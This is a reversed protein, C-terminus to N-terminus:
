RLRGYRWSTRRLYISRRLWNRELRTQTKHLSIDQLDSYRYDYGRSAEYGRRHALQKGPPRRIYGRGSNIEQRVWGRDARSVKPDDSLERLRKQDGRRGIRKLQAKSLLTRDFDDPEWRVPKRSFQVADDSSRAATRATDVVDDGRRALASAAGIAEDGYKLGFKAVTAGEGVIPVAGVVSLAANGWDGEAAYLGANAVDCASGAVPVLGCADLATHAHDAVFDAADSVADAIDDFGFHGDIEVFSVPNGGTLTYRNMTLPDFTLALDDLAGMYQDQQIFRNVSPSFQRTGLQLDGTGSDYRNGAYRFPNLPDTKAAADDDGDSEDDDLEGYPEYGYTARAGGADNLLLSVSGHDDTGFEYNTKGSAKDDQMGTMRGWADFSYRKTRNEYSGSAGSHREETLQNTVGVYDFNVTRTGSPHKETERGLRDLADYAYDASDTESGGAYARFRELRDLHDFGYDRLVAGGPNACSAKSGSPTTVCDVNGEEYWWKEVPTGGAQVETLQNAQYLFDLTAAGGVEKTINGAPDLTYSTSEAGKSWKVLRGRADYNWTHTCPSGQGCPKGTEGRTFTDKTKSGVYISGDEYLIDHSEIQALSGSQRSKTALTQVQHNSYYTWDTTQKSEYACASTKRSVIRGSQWGNDLYSTQTRRDDTCAAETGFDEHTTLWDAQNYTFVHRRGDKGTVLTGAGDEERNDTRESVNGNADYSFLTVKWNGTGDKQQRVKALEGFGNYTSRVVIRQEGPVSAGSADNVETLNNNADYAYTTPQSQPDTQTKRLGDVFYTWSITKATTGESVREKQWGQPTYDFRIRPKGPDKSSKVWGPDFYTYETKQTAPVDAANAEKVPLSSWQLNGNPDYRYHIYHQEPYQTSTPEVVKAVQDAGDYEYRRVFQTFPAVGGAADYARPSIERVLNGVKDYESITVLEKGTKYPQFVKTPRDLPDYETRKTIGKADTETIVNDDADYTYAKRRGEADVDATQHRAADYEYRRTNPPPTAGPTTCATPSTTLGAKPSTVWRREGTLDYCFHTRRAGTSSGDLPYRTSTVVRDLVDYTYDVTWDNVTASKVGEPLTVKVLRGATDYVLRTREDQPDVASHAGRIETQRDMADYTFDSIGAQSGVGPWFSNEQPDVTRILNDNADYDAASWILTGRLSSTSKPASQRWLRRFADYDLYIRYSRTDTGIDTAHNPDQIWLLVGDRDYGFQTVAGNPREYRSVLGSLDYQFKTLRGEADLTEYVTGNANYSHATVNGLPDRSTTLNGSADYGFTWEFDGITATGTGRPSTKTALRSIHPIARGVKWKGAADNADVAVNQYTLATRNSLEDWEDTLYGNANYAFRRTTGNPATVKTVHRNTWEVLTQEGKPNTISIAKGDTDYGYRSIRSLPATFTTVRNTIDFDFRSLQGLRNTRTALKWDNANAPLHYSFITEKGRPDRVSYLRTSQSSTRPEPDRRDFELPIAPGSGNPVTYTFLFERDPITQGDARM